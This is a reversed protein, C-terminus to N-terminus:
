YLKNISASFLMNFFTVHSQPIFYYNLLILKLVMAIVSVSVAALRTSFNRAFRPLPTPKRKPTLVV